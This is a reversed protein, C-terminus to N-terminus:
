INIYKTIYEMDLYKHDIHSFSLKSIELENWDDLLIFFYQKYHETVKNKLCIPITNM